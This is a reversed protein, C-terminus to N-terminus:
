TNSGAKPQSSAFKTKLHEALRLTLALLTLTPNAWSVTPFIGGSMIYLNELGHLRANADVVGLEPNAAMRTTGLHHNSHLISTNDRRLSRLQRRRGFRAAELAAGLVTGTEEFTRWDLDTLRWDLAIRRMGLADRCDILIVRSAPNPAQEAFLGLLPSEEDSMAPTRYIHARANLIRHDEQEKSSIGLNFMIEDGWGSRLRTIWGALDKEADLSFSAVQQHPHEMFFRGVIDHRNGLGGAMQADSNLLLRATEIGGCALVIQKATISGQRGNLTRIVLRRAESGTADVAIEAATANILVSVNEHMVLAQVSQDIRMTPAGFRWLSARELIERPLAVGEETAVERAGFAPRSLNLRLAAREVFPDLESAPFPWGSFPVWSRPEFDQRDFPACYGAWLHSSGGFQRTRTSTLPYPLGIVDGANLAETDDDAGFGGSEVILINAADALEEALRMGVHGSGVIVLDASRNLNVLDQRADLIM